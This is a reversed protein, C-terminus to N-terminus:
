APTLLKDGVLSGLPKPPASAPVEKSFSIFIEGLKIGFKSVTSKNLMITETQLLMWDDVAVQWVSDGVPLEFVYKFNLANGRAQGEASGIVDGASGTYRGDEGIELRWVRQDREGDDYLFQEDLVLIDGDMYGDIEVEFQRRVTGFRDQFFGHAFTKGLFYDEPRFELGKGAFDEIKMAGCGTLIMLCVALLWNRIM